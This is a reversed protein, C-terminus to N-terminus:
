PGVFEDLPQDREEASLVHGERVDRDIELPRRGQLARDDVGQPSHRSALEDRVPLERRERSPWLRWTGGPGHAGGVAEREDHRAM